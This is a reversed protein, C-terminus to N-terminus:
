GFSFDRDLSLIFFLALGYFVLVFFVTYFKPQVSHRGVASLGARRGGSGVRASSAHVV